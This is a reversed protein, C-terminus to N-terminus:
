LVADAIFNVENKMAILIMKSSIPRNIFCDSCRACKSRSQNLRKIVSLLLYLLPLSMWGFIYLVYVIRRILESM